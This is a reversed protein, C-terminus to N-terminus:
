DKRRNLLNSIKEASAKVYKTYIPVTEDTIRNAPGSVSISAIIEGETGFIPAAVCRLGLDFEENDLAIGEQRIRELEQLLKERSTITNLTYKILGHQLIVRDIEDESMGSLLVKGVGTCHMPLRAGIQSAVRISRDCEVKAIYLSKGHDAICLHATENAQAVLEGLYSTALSALDMNRIAVKGLVLIELGLKYKRNYEGDSTLFGEDELTAVLRQVSSKHFGLEAMIEKATWESKPGSFLKLISLAKRLSQM